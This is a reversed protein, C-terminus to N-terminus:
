KRLTKLNNKIRIVTERNPHSRTKRCQEFGAPNQCPKGEWLDPCVLLYRKAPTSPQNPSQTAPKTPKQHSKPHWFKCRHRTCNQKFKCPEVWQVNAVKNPVNPIDTKKYDAAIEEPHEVAAVKMATNIFTNVDDDKIDLTLKMVSKLLSPPQLNTRLVNLIEINLDVPGLDSLREYAFQFLRKKYSYFDLKNIETPTIKINELM